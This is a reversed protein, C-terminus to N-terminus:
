QGGGTVYDHIRCVSGKIEEWEQEPHAAQAAALLIMDSITDMDQPRRSTFAKIAASAANEAYEPHLAATTALSLFEVIEGEDSAAKIITAIVSPRLNRAAGFMVHLARAEDDLSYGYQTKLRLHQAMGDAVEGISRWNDSNEQNDVCTSDYYPSIEAM